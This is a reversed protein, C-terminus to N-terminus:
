WGRAAEIIREHVLAHAEGQLSGARWTLWLQNRPPSSVEMLRVLDGRALASACTHRPLVTIGAGAVALALASRLNNAVVHARFRARTLFVDNWWDAVLPLDEDYAIVPAGSEGIRRAGAADATLPGIGAGWEPSGVLELQEFCLRVQELGRRRWQATTVALDLEGAVLHRVIPEDVDFQLRLRLDGTAILDSLVPIVRITVFEAPGGLYVSRAVTATSSAERRGAPVSRELADVHQAVAQALERGAATPRVGRPERRFLERGVQSELAKVQMSVAPQTLHLSEAARTVTGARYVALFTRLLDLDAM